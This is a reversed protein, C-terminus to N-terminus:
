NFVRLLKPRPQDHRITILAKLKDGEGTKHTFIRILQDKQTRLVEHVQPVLRKELSHAIQGNKMLREEFSDLRYFRGSLCQEIPIFYSSKQVEDLFAELAQDTVSERPQSALPAAKRTEQTQSPPTMLTQIRSSLPAAPIQTPQPPQSEKRHILSVGKEEALKTLAELSISQSLDFPGSSQRVLATMTAGVGLDEGLQGVWARIYAGKECALKVKLSKPSVEVVESSYFRMTRIPIDVEQGSRAYEYLKRGHLKVASYIPVPLRLDGVLKQAAETIATQNLDMSESRFTVEGETDLTDTSYGFDMQAVYSKDDATIYPSLKTAEGLLIVLLGEAMPDLTGAHGVEKTKFLRRVRAVVDHSTFGKPKDILLVGRLAASM